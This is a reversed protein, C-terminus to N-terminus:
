SLHYRALLIQIDGYMRQDVMTVNDPLPAKFDKECEIVCLAGDAVFGGKIAGSLAPLVMDKRYPPDFFCLTAAKIMDRALGPKTSDKRALVYCGDPVSLSELNKQTCALSEPRRDLFVCGAAGRSLAEIGLAGTGCFADLVQAGQPMDYSLLINFVAQRVKDTTPRIDHGRPVCLKRGKYQGGTVRM